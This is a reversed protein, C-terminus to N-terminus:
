QNDLKSQKSVPTLGNQKRGEEATRCPAYRHIVAEAVKMGDMAASMIGGAYGAGEGCPYFGDLSSVFSSDRLIRVPSSTRSEVGALIADPLAFGRIKRDFQSMGDRLAQSISSGLVLNLDAFQTEGRFCPSVTRFESSIIGACFDGYLQVPIKGKGARYARTELERQFLIGALPNETGGYEEPFVTVIVASNANKSNRDHYSMGNVATMGEESSANVVYGGPCMCFTYVGRGDRSKGTLKYPAPSLFAAEREGYQSVDILHQPHQIRLGVAFSKAEMRIGQEYFRQISDRASHGIAAILVSCPIKVGDKLIVGRLRNDEKVLRSVCASFRIEGGLDLIEERIGRIIGILRDTGVHPKQEWLIEEDAGFRVFAKLVEQNRGFRDKVLTNLKGDSFTGAGGEGFSVNCEPDLIGRKWFRDIVRAREEVPLGRELIIPHYGERALLLGAFLGAPGSGVVVPRHLLTEEGHSPAAYSVTEAQTVRVDRNKKLVRAEHEVTVDLMYSYLIDEKKRADISRRRIQVEKLETEPIRLLSIVKKRLAADDHHISLAIPNIRIAM